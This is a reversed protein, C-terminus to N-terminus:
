GAPTDLGNTLNRFEVYLDLICAPLPWGLALHCSLEAIAYYSVFLSRPSIQYPPHRGCRHLEEEFLRVTRGSILEHAVLCVPKPREGVPQSFEFDVFWIEEFEVDGIRMVKFRPAESGCSPGVHPHVQRLVCNEATRQFDEGAM